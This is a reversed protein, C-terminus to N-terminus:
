SIAILERQEGPQRVDAVPDVEAAFQPQFEQHGGLVDVLHQAAVPGFEPHADQRAEAGDEGEAEHVVGASAQDPLAESGVSLLDAGKRRDPVFPDVLHDHRSVDDLVPLHGRQVAAM